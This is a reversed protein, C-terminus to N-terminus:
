SPAKRKLVVRTGEPIIGSPRPFHGVLFGDENPTILLLKQSFDTKQVQKLVLEPDLYTHREQIKQFENQFKEGLPSIKTPQPYALIDRDSSPTEKRLSFHWVLIRSNSASGTPASPRVLATYALEVM